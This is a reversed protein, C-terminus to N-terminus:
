PIVSTTANLCSFLDPCNSTSCLDWEGVLKSEGVGGDGRWHAILQGQEWQYEGVSVSGNRQLVFQYVVLENKERFRSLRPHRTKQGSFGRPSQPVSGGGGFAHGQGTRTMTRSWTWM